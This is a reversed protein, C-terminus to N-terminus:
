PESSSSPRWRDIEEYSPLSAGYAISWILDAYLAIGRRSKDMDDAFLTHVYLVNGDDDIDVTLTGPTLSLLNSLLVTKTPSLATADFGFFGGRIAPVPRLIERALQVSAIFLEFWYIGVLRTIGWISRAYVDSGAVPRLVALAAFGAVFGFVFSILTFTGSLFTWVLALVLNLALNTV